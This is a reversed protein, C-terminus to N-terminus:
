LDSSSQLLSKAYQLLAEKENPLEDAMVADLLTQLTKGLQVGAPYGLACLESGNIALDAIHLCVNANKWEIAEQLFLECPTRRLLTRLQLFLKYDAYGLIAVIQKRSLVSYSDFISFAQCFRSVAQVTAKDARWSLLIGRMAAEDLNQSDCLAFFRVAFDCPLASVTEFAQQLAGQPVDWAPAIQQFIPKAFPLTLALHAGCLARRIEAYIREPAIKSLLPACAKAGAIADADPSFGLTATFRFLRLIRLADESFRAQANGVCRLVKAEIDAQGGYPDCIEGRLDAAIANVTFDRRSLDEELSDTFAVADPHRADSYASETRYATIEVALDGAMVTLTGHQLGTKHVRLDSFVELMQMPTANTTLDFDHLSVARIADRVCGGVAYAEFGADELRQLIPAVPQLTKRLDM